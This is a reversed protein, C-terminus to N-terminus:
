ATVTAPVSGTTVTNSDSALTAMAFERVAAAYQTHHEILGLHKAPALTILRARRIGARIRESAEPKCTTDRDAAVVLAPIPLSGLTETEDFRIMGLMGRALVAPPAKVQFRAAFDIQEWSETGAFSSRKNSLHASGNRYSMWNLLWLLPSLAITLYMLPALVPKEIATFFAAGKTTRVPNTYTTHTLVLGKVRPGLLEPFLRTFTLTMMGGISHGVLFVPAGQVTDVVARLDRALKELSLDGNAPRRSAGLGPEDWVVLQFHRALERHAYVWEDSDLGWGHSCVLAPAGEPGYSRVQLESGDPRSIRESRTSAPLGPRPDDGTRKALRLILKLLPGGAVAILTLLIAGALCLTAANWGLQPAFVSQRLTEDWGWSRMYWERGLYVAGGAIAASLLGLFWMTLIFTPIM